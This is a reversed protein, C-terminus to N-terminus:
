KQNEGCFCGAFGRFIKKGGRFVPAAESIIKVFRTCVAASTNQPLSLAVNV